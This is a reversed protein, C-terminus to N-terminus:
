YSRNLKQVLIKKLIFNCCIQRAGIQALVIVVNVTVKQSHDRVVRYIYPSEKSFNWDGAQTGRGREGM